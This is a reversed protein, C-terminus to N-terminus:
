HWSGTSSLVPQWVHQDYIKDASCRGSGLVRQAQNQISVQSGAWKQGFNAPGFFILDPVGKSGHLLKNPVRQHHKVLHDRDDWKSHRSEALHGLYLVTNLFRHLLGNETHGEPGQIAAM